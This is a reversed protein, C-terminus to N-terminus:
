NIKRVSPAGAQPYLGNDMNQQVTNSKRLNDGAFALRSAYVDDLGKQNAAKVNPDIYRRGVGVYNQVANGPVAPIDGKEFLEWQRRYRPPMIAPGVSNVMTNYNNRNTYSYLSSGM